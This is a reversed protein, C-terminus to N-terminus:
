LDTGQPGIGDKRTALATVHTLFPRFWTAYAPDLLDHSKREDDSRASAGILEWGSSGGRFSFLWWDGLRTTMRIRHVPASQGCENGPETQFSVAALLKELAEEVPENPPMVFTGAKVTKWYVRVFRLAFQDFESEMTRTDTM